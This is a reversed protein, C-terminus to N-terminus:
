LSFCSNKSTRNQKKSAYDGFFRLTPIIVPWSEFGHQRFFQFGGTECNLPVLLRVHLLGADRYHRFNASRSYDHVDGAEEDADMRAAATNNMNSKVIVYDGLLHALWCALSWWTVQKVPKVDPKYRAAGCADGADQEARMCTFALCGNVCYDVTRTELSVSVDCFRELM